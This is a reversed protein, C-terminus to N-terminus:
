FTKLLEEFWSRTHRDESAELLGLFDSTSSIDRSFVQSCFRNFEERGMRDELKKLLVPGKSYLLKEADPETSRDFGWIPPTGVISRSKEALNISFQNEGFRERLVALASYEAFSENLWDEWSSAPAKYWWQHAIEHALYRNYKERNGIYSKGDFGGLFIGGIRGYGGGKTRRSEVVCFDRHVAGFWRNYNLIIESIDSSLNELTSDPITLHYIHLKNGALQREHTKLNRSLCISIDNTPEPCSVHWGTKMKEIYGISALGYESDCSVNIDYTFIGLDFSFPFWPFYLGIETWQDGIVNASWGPWRTIKGKYEFKINACGEKRGDGKPIIVIKKAEPLFRIESEGTDIMFDFPADSSLSTIELQNHLYLVMQGIPIAEWPLRLTGAVEIEQDPPSIILDM